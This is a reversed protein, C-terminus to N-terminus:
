AEIYLLEMNKCLEMNDSDYLRSEISCLQSEVENVHFECLRTVDCNGEIELIHFSIQKVIRFSSDKITIELRLNHM